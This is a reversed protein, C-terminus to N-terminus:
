LARQWKFTQKGGTNFRHVENALIDTFQQAIPVFNFNALVYRRGNAGMSKSLADTEALTIMKSRFDSADGPNFLLGNGCRLRQANIENTEALVPLGCSQAEFFSMSCQKPFVALDAAQYFRALNFYSQTPYRIIRNKSRSFTQEVREGYAGAANGVIVLAVKRDTPPRLEDVVADAFFQGGKSEDLKGAYVIVFDRNDISHQSRFELRSRRSPSFYSTDTGFSLLITKDLPYGLCRQVYDSDVVRILPIGQALIRPTIFTKFFVRFLHRLRNVSSMELQHNDLVMPYALKPARLIYRMGTLSDDSHVFLVDPQLSDVVKFLRPPFIARGSYWGVLPVRHIRVGTSEFFRNDREDIGDTGFFDTLFTPVKKLQATVIAVDHGQRAQLRSLLNVQYGADPHVFDEVHVIRM